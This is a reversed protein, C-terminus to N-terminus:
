GPGAVEVRTVEDAPIELTDVLVQAVERPSRGVPKALALPLGSAYDAHRRGRPMEVEVPPLPVQPLAGRAVARQAADELYRRLAEKFM